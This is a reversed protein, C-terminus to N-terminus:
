ILQKQTFLILHQASAPCNNYYFNHLKCKLQVPLQKPWWQPLFPLTRMATPGVVLVAPMSTCTLQLCPSNIQNVPMVKM